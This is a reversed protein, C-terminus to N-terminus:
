ETISEENIIGDWLKRPSYNIAELSMTGVRYICEDHTAPQYDDTNKGLRERDEPSLSAEAEVAHDLDDKERKACM